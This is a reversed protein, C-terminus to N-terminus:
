LDSMEIIGGESHRYLLAESESRTMKSSSRRDSKVPARAPITQEVLCLSSFSTM